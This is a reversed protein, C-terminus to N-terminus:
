DYQPIHVEGPAWTATFAFSSTYGVCGRNSYATEWISGVLLAPAAGSEWSCGEMAIKNYHENVAKDGM